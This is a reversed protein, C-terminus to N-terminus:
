ALSEAHAAEIANSVTNMFLRTGLVLPFRQDIDAVFHDPDFSFIRVLQHPRMHQSPVKMPPVPLKHVLQILVLEGQKANGIFHLIRLSEIFCNMLGDFLLDNQVM